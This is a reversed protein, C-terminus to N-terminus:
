NTLSIEKIKEILIDSDTIVETFYGFKEYIEIENTFYFISINHSKAYEYKVKDRLIANKSYFMNNSDFHQAGHYEILLNFKPLYFDYRLYKEGKGRLDHYIKETEYVISTDEFLKCLRKEGLSKVSPLLMEKEEKSLFALFKNYVSSFRISFDKRSFINNNEIFISFSEYSSIGSLDEYKPPLIEDQEKKTLINIFKFYAQSYKKEFDTKSKVNNEELFNKFDDYTKLDTYSSRKSPLVERQEKKSLNKLFNLYGKNFRKKFDGRSIINNEQIFRQFDDKTRLHKYNPLLPPIISNKIKESLKCFKRYIGQFNNRLEARSSIRNDRVFKVLEEILLKEDIM